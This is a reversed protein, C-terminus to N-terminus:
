RGEALAISLGDSGEDAAGPSVKELVLRTVTDVTRFTEADVDAPDLAIHFTDELFSILALTSFSDIVGLNLLDTQDDLDREDGSLWTSVIYNRLRVKVGDQMM